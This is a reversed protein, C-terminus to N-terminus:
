QREKQVAKRIMEYEKNWDVPDKTINIGFVKDPDVKGFDCINEKEHAGRNVLYYYRARAYDFLPTDKILEEQHILNARLINAEIRNPFRLFQSMVLGVSAGGILFGGAFYLITKSMSLNSNKGM